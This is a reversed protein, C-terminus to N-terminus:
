FRVAIQNSLSCNPRPVNIKTKNAYFVIVKVQYKM